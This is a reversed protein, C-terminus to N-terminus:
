SPSLETLLYTLVKVPISFTILINYLMERGFSNYDKKFDMIASIGNVKKELIQRTFPFRMLLQHTGDLVLCSIHILIYV